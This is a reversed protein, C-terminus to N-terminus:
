HCLSSSATMSDCATHKQSEEIEANTSADDRGTLTGLTTATKEGRIKKKKKSRQCERSAPCVSKISLTEAILNTKLEASITTSVEALAFPFRSPSGPQFHQLYRRLSYGSFLIPTFPSTMQQALPAAASLGSTEEIVQRTGRLCESEAPPYVRQKSM